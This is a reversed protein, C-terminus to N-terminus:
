RSNDLSYMQNVKSKKWTNIKKKNESLDYSSLAWSLLSKEKKKKMKKTVYMYM